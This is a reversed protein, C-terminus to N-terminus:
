HIGAVGVIDLGLKRLEQSKLAATLGAQSQSSTTPVPVDDHHVQGRRLVQVLVEGTASSAQGEANPVWLFGDIQDTASGSGDTPNALVHANGTLGSFDATLVVAVGSYAGGFTLTVVASADGLDTGATQVAVVDGPAINSLAELAAQVAAATADFAIAATTEGDVSLTFDGATAPTANSTITYVEQAVTDDWVAWEAAGEDYALPTLHPLVPAGSLIGLKGPKIGGEYPFARLNPTQAVAPGFLEKPELAM